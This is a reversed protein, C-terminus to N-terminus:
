NKSINQFFAVNLHEIEKKPIFYATKLYHMQIFCTQAYKSREISSAVLDSHM